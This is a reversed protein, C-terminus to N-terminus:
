GGAELPRTLELYGAEGNPLCVYQEIYRDFGEQTKAAQCYLEFHSSDFDYHTASATPHAGRPTEVVIDVLAAPFKTRTPMRQIEETSVIKDVSVVVKKSATALLVDFAPAGFLQVNGYVDAVQGHILTVDPSLPAVALLKRQGDQDPFPRYQDPFPRYRDPNVRPLDTCLDPIPMFPLDCAAARLSAAFGPGDMEYVKLRGAQAERRFCPALGFQEFSVFVCHLESVCGAGILIDPALSAASPALRLRRRESRILQRVLAMPHSYLTWGGIGVLDGDRVHSAAEEISMTKARRTRNGGAHPTLTTKM